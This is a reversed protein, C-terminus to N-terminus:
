VQHCSSPLRPPPSDHVRRYNRRIDIEPAQKTIGLVEYLNTAGQVRRAEEDVNGEMESQVLAM